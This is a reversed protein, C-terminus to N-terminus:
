PGRLFEPSRDQAMKARKNKKKKKKKKKTKTKIEVTWLGAPKHLPGNDTTCTDTLKHM